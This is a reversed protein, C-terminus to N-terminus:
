KDDKHSYNYWEALQPILPDIFMGVKDCVSTFEDHNLFFCMGGCSIAKTDAKHYRFELLTCALEFAEHVLSGLMLGWWRSDGGIRMEIYTKNSNILFESGSEPTLTIRVAAGNMSGKLYKPPKYESKSM